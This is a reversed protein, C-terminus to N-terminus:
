YEKVVSWGQGLDFREMAEAQSVTNQGLDAQYIVGNQNVLFTMVGSQGYRVPYAVLAFGGVQQGNIVYDLAGGPASASQGKLFRFRYGFWPANKERGEVYKWADKLAEQLPSLPDGEADWYLGDRQGPRSEFRSTYERVRDQDSDRLRFDEEADILRQLATHTM